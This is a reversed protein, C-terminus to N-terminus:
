VSYCKAMCRGQEDELDRLRIVFGFTGVVQLTKDKDTEHDEKLEMYTEAKHVCEKSKIIQEQSRENWWGRQLNKSGPVYVRQRRRDRKWQSRYEWATKRKDQAVRRAEDDLRTTKEQIHHKTSSLLAIDDAFDLDDLKPTFKWRMENEGEGVSRRLIWDMVVLFMFGSMNCGQKVGAKINFWKGTEGQDEVACQFDEFFLRMIRIIKKPIGYKGMIVWM